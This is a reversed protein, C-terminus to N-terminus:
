LANLLGMVVSLAGFASATGNSNQSDEGETNKKSETSTKETSKKSGKKSDASADSKKSASSPNSSVGTALVNQSFLIHFIQM